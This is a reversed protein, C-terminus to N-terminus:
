DKLYKNKSKNVLIKKQVYQNKKKFSFSFLPSNLVANSPYKNWLKGSKLVRTICKAFDENSCM